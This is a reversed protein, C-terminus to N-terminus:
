PRESTMGHQVPKVIVIDPSPDQPIPSQTDLQTSPQTDSEAQISTNRKKITIEVLFSILALFLGICLISFPIVLHKMGIVEKEDEEPYKFDPSPFM